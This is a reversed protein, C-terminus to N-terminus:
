GTVWTPTQTLLFTLLYAAPLKVHQNILTVVSRHSCQICPEDMRPFVCFDHGHTAEDLVHVIPMVELGDEAAARLQAQTEMSM